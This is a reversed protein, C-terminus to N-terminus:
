CTRRLRHSKARTRVAPPAPCPPRHLIRASERSCSPSSSPSSPHWGVGNGTQYRDV